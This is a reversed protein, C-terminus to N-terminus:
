GDLRAGRYSALGGHMSLYRDRFSSSPDLVSHALKLALNLMQSHKPSYRQELLLEIGAQSVFEFDDYCAQELFQWHSFDVPCGDNFLHLLRPNFVLRCLQSVSQILPRPQENPQSLGIPLENTQLTPMVLRRCLSLSETAAVAKSVPLVVSQKRDDVLLVTKDYIRPKWAKYKQLQVAGSYYLQNILKLENPYTKKSQFFQSFKM